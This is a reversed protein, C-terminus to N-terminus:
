SLLSFGPSQVAHGGLCLQRELLLGIALFFDLAILGRASSSARSFWSPSFGASCVLQRRASSATRLFRGRPTFSSRVSSPCLATTVLTAKSGTPRVRALPLSSPVTLNHSPSLPLSSRVSSPCVPETCHTAKRDSPRSTAELPLSPAIRRQLVSVPAQKFTM